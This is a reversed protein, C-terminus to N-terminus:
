RSRFYNKIKLVFHPNWQKNVTGIVNYHKQYHSINHQMPLCSISDDKNKVVIMRM